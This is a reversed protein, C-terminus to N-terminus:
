RKHFFDRASQARAVIEVPPCYRDLYPGFADPFTARVLQNLVYVPLPLPALAYLTELWLERLGVCLAARRRKYFNDTGKRPLLETVREGVTQKTPCKIRVNWHRILLRLEHAGLGLVNSTTGLVTKLDGYMTQPVFTRPGGGLLLEWFAGVNGRSRGQYSLSQGHRLPNQGPYPKCQTRALAEFFRRTARDRGDAVHQVFLSPSLPPTAAIESVFEADGSEYLMLTLPEAPQHWVRLVIRILAREEDSFREFRRTARWHKAWFVLLRSDCGQPSRELWRMITENRDSVIANKIRLEAKHKENAKVYEAVRRRKRDNM